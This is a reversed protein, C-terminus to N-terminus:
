AFGAVTIPPSGHKVLDKRPLGVVCIATVLDCEPEKAQEYEHLSANAQACDEVAVSRRTGGVPDGQVCERGAPARATTERKARQPSECSMIQKSQAKTNTRYRAITGKINASSKSSCRLLFSIRLIMGM